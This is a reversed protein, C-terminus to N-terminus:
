ADHDASQIVVSDGQAMRFSGVGGERLEKSTMAVGYYPSTYPVVDQDARGRPPSSRDAPLGGTQGVEKSISEGSKSAAAM